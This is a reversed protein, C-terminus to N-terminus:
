LYTIAFFCAETPDALMVISMSSSLLLEFSGNGVEVSTATGMVDISANIDHSISKVIVTFSVVIGVLM